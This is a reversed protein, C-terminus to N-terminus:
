SVFALAVEEISSFTTKNISARCTDITDDWFILLGRSVTYLHINTLPKSCLTNNLFLVLPKSSETPQCLRHYTSMYEGHCITM